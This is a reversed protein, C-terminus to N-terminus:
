RCPLIAVKHLLPADDNLANTEVYYAAGCSDIVVYQYGLTQEPIRYIIASPWNGRLTMDSKSAEHRCGSFLGAALLATVLLGVTRPQFTTKTNM